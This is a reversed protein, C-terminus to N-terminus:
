TRIRILVHMHIQQCRCHMSKKKSKLNQTSKLATNESILRGGEVVESLKSSGWRLWVCAKESPRSASQNGIRQSAVRSIEVAATCSQLEVLLLSTNGKSWMKDVM